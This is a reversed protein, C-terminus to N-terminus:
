QPIRAHQETRYFVNGHIIYPTSPPPTATVVLVAALLMALMLLASLLGKTRM